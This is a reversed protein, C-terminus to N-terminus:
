QTFRSLIAGVLYALAAAAGGLLLTETGGRYWKLLVFRAKIAGVLFLAVATLATSIWYPEKVAASHFLDPVFALLPLSGLCFFALFTATAARWASHEELQLGYEEQIMTDLWRRRDETVVSVIRDLDDGSFGKASFIQRVEEREGDPHLDIHSTEILRARGLREQEARTGLYNSVAMSFGDALLNAAGLIIVITSAMGAGAVGSVVAFTTIVGDVGGYVFDRLYSQPPGSELRQRIAEPTHTAKLSDFSVNHAPM